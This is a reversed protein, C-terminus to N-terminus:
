RERSRRAPVTFAVGQFHDADLVYEGNKWQREVLERAQLASEAEVTVTMSLSERIQVEYEKM